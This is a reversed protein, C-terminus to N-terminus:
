IPLDVARGAAVWVAHESEATLRRNLDGLADRYYRGGPTDPILGAGVDDTVAVVPRRTGRWAAVLEAVRAEVRERAARLAPDPWVDCADMVDALWTGLGDILLVSTEGATLLPALDTTEATAWHAPRRARHAAVRARWAPDDDRAPGTAVYTVYPEGAVRLEAEESKGSRAGGVVVTRRGTWGTASPGAAAVRGDPRDTGDPTGPVDTAAPTGPTAVSATLLRTGDPVPPVRWQALRRALEQPSRWRHDLHVPVVRTAGDITGARRLAGLRYPDAALDILVVDCRGGLDAGADADPMPGTLCLLRVGARDVAFGGPVPRADAPGGSAPSEGDVRVDFPARPAAGARACSACPCRPDPWGRPGGAGAVYVEM